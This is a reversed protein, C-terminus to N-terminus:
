PDFCLECHKIHRIISKCHEFQNMDIAVLCIVLHAICSNYSMLQLKSSQLLIFLGACTLTIVTMDLQTSQKQFEKMVKIQKAPEMQQFTCHFIATM